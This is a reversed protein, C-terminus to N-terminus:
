RGAKTVAKKRQDANLVRKRMRLTTPTVELLEDDEIYELCQELSMIRPPPISVSDDKGAARMNTLKKTRCVNIALDDDRNNEGVIMGEYVEAGPAVFFEGRDQLGALGYPVAPGGRDSVLM